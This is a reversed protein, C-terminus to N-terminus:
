AGMSPNGLMRWVGKEIGEGKGVSFFYMLLQNIAGRKVGKWVALYLCPFFPSITNKWLKPIEGSSKQESNKFLSIKEPFVILRKGDRM